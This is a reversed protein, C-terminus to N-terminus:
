IQSFIIQKFDSVLFYLILTDLTLFAISFITKSLAFFNIKPTLSFSISELIIEAKIESSITIRLLSPIRKFYSINSSM